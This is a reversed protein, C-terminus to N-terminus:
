RLMVESCRPSFASLIQELTQDGGLYLHVIQKGNRELGEDLGKQKSTPFPFPPSPSSFPPPAGCITHYQTQRWLTGVQKCICQRTCCRWPSISLDPPLSKWPLLLCFKYFPQMSKKSAFTTLCWWAFFFLFSFQVTGLLYPYKSFACPYLIVNMFLILHTQRLKILASIFHKISETSLVDLTQKIIM